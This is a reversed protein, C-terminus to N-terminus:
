AMEECDVNRVMAMLNLYGRAGSVVNNQPPSPRFVLCFKCLHELVKPLCQLKKRKQLYTLIMLCTQEEKGNVYNRDLMKCVNLKSPSKKTKFLSKNDNM